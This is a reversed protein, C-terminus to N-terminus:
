FRGTVELEITEEDDGNDNDAKFKKFSVGIAFNPTLFAKLRGEYTKGESSESDGKKLKFSGGFSIKQNIYFDAGIKAINDSGDEEGSTSDEEEFYEKGGECEINFARSNGIEHVWKIELSYETGKVTLETGNVTAELNTYSYLFGIFFGQAIFIGIEGEYIDASIEADVTSDFEVQQKTYQASLYIPVVPLTYDIFAGYIEEDAELGSDFENKGTGGILSIRGPHELFEAEALPHTGISVQSFLFTAVLVYLTYKDNDDDESDQYFGNLEFQYSDQAYANGTIFITIISVLVFFQLFRNM